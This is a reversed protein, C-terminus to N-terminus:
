DNKRFLACFDGTPRASQSVTGNYYVIRLVGTTSFFRAGVYAAVTSNISGTIGVMTYGTPATLANQQAQTLTIDQTLIGTTTRSIDSVTIMTGFIANSGGEHEMPIMAM